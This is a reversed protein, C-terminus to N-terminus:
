FTEFATAVDMAWGRWGRLKAHPSDGASMWHGIPVEFGQKARGALREWVGAPVATALDAKRPPRPSGIGPALRAVLEADAFPVRVEVGHQMSSWDTDRLLQNRMYRSIELYAVVGYPTTNPLAPRPLAQALAQLADAAQDRGLIGPLEWPMFLARRLFYADALSAGYEVIGPLKPLRQALVPATVRRILRGVAPSAIPALRRVLSPVQHFSPYGGFLEDGGVGSLAVKLGAERAALSVFYTNIGDITPQDMAQLIRPRHRIFDQAGFRVAQHHMGLQAAIWASLPAEGKGTDRFEDFEVTISRLQERAHACAISAIVASDIGSSLFVGVPVDAVMHCAVSQSLAAVLGAPAIEKGETRSFVAELDFFRRPQRIGDADVWLWHGAPLAAVGSWWTLPEPVSGWLLFGARAAPSPAGDVNGGAVLARSQSAFRFVGAGSAYYLPKIGLPDRALFLGNKKADWIAFAYMGRLKPLMAPGHLAYLKLLVETDTASLFSQGAQRLEQRLERYNYIEGNFTISLGSDDAQM